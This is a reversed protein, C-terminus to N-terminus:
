PWTLATNLPYRLALVLVAAAVSKGILIIGVTGLVQLPQQWLVRPDFLMGVAVFFLM